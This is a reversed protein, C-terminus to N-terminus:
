VKVVELLKGSVKEATVGEPEAKYNMLMRQRLVPLAGMRWVVGRWVLGLPTAYYLGPDASGLRPSGPYRFFRGSLLGLVGGCGDAVLLTQLLSRWM